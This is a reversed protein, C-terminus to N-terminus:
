KKRVYKEKNKAKADFFLESVISCIEDKSDESLEEGALNIEINKLVKQAQKSGIHGYQEEANKIFVGDTGILYDTSVRFTKALKAIVEQKRPFRENAEYYVLIRESVGILKALEAQTMDEQVRLQKVRDGFLMEDNGKWFINM